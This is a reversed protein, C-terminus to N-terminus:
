YVNEYSLCTSPRVAKYISYVNRTCKNVYVCKITDRNVQNLTRQSRKKCADLWTQQKAKHKKKNGITCATRRTDSITASVFTHTPVVSVYICIHNDYYAREFNVKSNQARKKIRMKEEFGEWKIVLACFIRLPETIWCM